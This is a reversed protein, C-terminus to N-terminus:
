PRAGPTTTTLPLAAWGTSFTGPRRVLDEPPCALQLDPLRDLIREVATQAIIRGLAPAPCGHAGASFALHARNGAREHPLPAHAPDSNAAAFSVMIPKGPEIPVGEYAHAQRAYLPSYNPVPPEKWLVADIAEGVSQSGDFVTTTNGPERVTYRLTSGILNSCPTGGAGIPLLLQQGMEKDSLRAPHAVLWSAIDPGPHRRKLTTLELCSAELRANAQRAEHSTDFLAALATIIHHGLEEGCGFIETLVQLPLPTAYEAIADFHGRHEFRDILRDAIRTVTSALAHTDVLNLSDTIAGRLRQHPIGDMWLANDRPMMMSVAPIDLSVEGTQLATWHRPDKAFISPTNLLLYRAADYTTTLYGTLGHDIEVPAIPGVTERLLTYTAQPDASFDPGHIPILGSGSVPSPRPVAAEHGVEAGAGAYPCTSRSSSVPNWPDNM